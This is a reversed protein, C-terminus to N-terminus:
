ALEIPIQRGGRGKARPLRIELVGHHYRATIKDADVSPPLTMSREFTAVGRAGGEGQGSVPVSRHIARITLVNGDVTVSLDEPSIGPVQIRIVTDQEGQQVDMQEVSPVAPWAGGLVHQQWQSMMRDFLELPNWQRMPYFMMAM